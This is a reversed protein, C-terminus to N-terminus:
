AYLDIFVVGSAGAGGATSTTASLGGTGGGGYALGAAQATGPQQISGGLQSAGGYGGVVSVGATVRGNGGSGGVLTIDGTGAAGGAGAIAFSTGTGAAAMGAGGSGGNAVVTTSNFSSPNGVVGANNGATGGTGGTGVTVTISGSAINSALIFSESYGGGGGGAGNSAGSAGGTSGGGGGGGGVMRIRVARLWPTTNTGDFAKSKDFTGSSPYIRTQVYRYGQSIDGASVWQTAYDTGSSKTLIANTAGGTPVGQGSVLATGSIKSPAIAASASIDSDVITGTLIMASTVTGTDAQTVAIGTIKSASLTSAIMSDTISNASPTRTDSLRSDNSLVNSYFLISNWQNTGNGVKFKGTDTELGIEGLALKPNIASWNAATDRRVQITTKAPM